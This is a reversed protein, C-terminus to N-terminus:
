ATLPDATVREKTPVHQQLLSRLHTSLGLVESEHELMRSPDSATKLANARGEEGPPGGTGALDQPKIKEVNRTIRSPPASRNM